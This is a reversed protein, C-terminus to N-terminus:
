MTILGIKLGNHLLTNLSKWKNTKPDYEKVYNCLIWISNSDECVILKGNLAVCEVSSRRIECESVITWCNKRADYREVTFSDNGNYCGGVVYLSGDVGAIGFDSSKEIVFSKQNWKNTIPNFCEMTQCNNGVAYILGNVVAVKITTLPSSLPPLFQWSDTSFDYMEVSHLWKRDKCGGIVYLKGNVEALGPSSRAMRMSPLSNFAKTRLDFCFVNRSAEGSAEGGVVVLKDRISIVSKNLTTSQNSITTPIDQNLVWIPWNYEPELTRFALDEGVYALKDHKQIPPVQPRTEPSLHWQLWSCILEYCEITKCVLHRSEIILKPDLSDFRINSLLEFLYPERKERDYDIWSVLSVFVKESSIEAGFIFKRLQDKDLKFFEDENCVDEFHTYAFMSAERHLKIRGQEEALSLVSLCNSADLQDGLFEWCATILTELQFLQAAKLVRLVTASHLKISATYIFGLISELVIGDIDKLRIEEHRAKNNKRKRNKQLMSFFFLSSASLIMKHAHFRTQDNETILIIDDFQRDGNGYFTQLKAWINNVHDPCKFIFSDSTDDITMTM